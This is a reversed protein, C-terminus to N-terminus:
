KYNTIPVRALEPCPTEQTPSEVLKFIPSKIFNLRKVSAVNEMAKTMEDKTLTTKIEITAYVVDAPFLSAAAGQSFLEPHFDSDYIIIDVQRSYNGDKDIVIGSGISYRKPLFKVLLNRLANENATGKEVTQPILRNLFDIELQLRQTVGYYYTNLFDKNESM